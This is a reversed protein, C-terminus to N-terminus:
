AAHCLAYAWPSLRTRRPKARDGRRSSTVLGQERWIARRVTALTDSFTPVPKHYWAATAVRQREQAPLRAALLTVISFLALLCPTTRTVVKDSWQRQAAESFPWLRASLVNLKRRTPRPNGNSVFSALREDQTPRLALM